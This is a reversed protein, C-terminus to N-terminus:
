NTADRSGLQGLGFWKISSSGFESPEERLHVHVEIGVFGLQRALSVLDDKHGRM